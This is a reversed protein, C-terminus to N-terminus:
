LHFLLFKVRLYKSAFIIAPQVDKFKYVHLFYSHMQYFVQELREM